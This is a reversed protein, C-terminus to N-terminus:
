HLCHIIGWNILIRGLGLGVLFQRWLVGEAPGQLAGKGEGEKVFGGEAGVSSELIGQLDEIFLDRGTALAKEADGIEFNLNM